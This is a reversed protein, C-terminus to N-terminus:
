YNVAGGVMKLHPRLQLLTELRSISNKKSQLRTIMFHKSQNITCTLLHKLSLFISLEEGYFLVARGDETFGAPPLSQPPPPPQPSPTRGGVAYPHATAGLHSGSSYQNSSLDGNMGPGSYGGGQPQPQYVTQQPAPPPYHTPPPQTYSPQNYQAQRVPAPHAYSPQQPPPQSYGSPPPQPATYTPQSQPPPVMGNNNAGFGSLRQTPNRTVSPPQSYSPQQQQQQQPQRQRFSEAMSDHAVKGSPDLSIGVSNPPSVSSGPSTAPGAGSIFSNRRNTSSSQRQPAPSTSRSGAGHAGIGVHGERSVPRALNQGQSQNHSHTHAPPGAFSNRRSSSKREGPLSQQYDTVAGTVPQDSEPQKPPAMFTATPPNPSSPRSTSGPYAGVVIEASNRYDRSSAAPNSTSSPPSLADGATNKRTISGRGSRSDPPTHTPRYTSNRRGSGGESSVAKNLEAMRQALPDNPDGVSGNQAPSATPRGNSPQQPDKSPDVKYAQNGVKLMTEATPDIPDAHPDSPPQLASKATPRRNLQQTSGAGNPAASGNGNAQTQGRISARSQTQSRSPPQVDGLTDATGRRSGAGVGATNVFPEDEVPPPPQRPPLQRQSSRPFQAPRSTIRASGSPVAEANNYNVFSPPDPIANGTGYDRVFNEM